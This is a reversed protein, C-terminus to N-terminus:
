NRREAFNIQWPWPEEVWRWPYESTTTGFNTLPGYAEEYAKKLENLEEVTENYVELAREDRPHTDLYLNFEVATFELAMIEILMEKRTESQSMNGRDKGSKYKGWPKENGEEENGVKYPRYLEPFITGRYLGKEPDWRERFQQITIHARALDENNNHKEM